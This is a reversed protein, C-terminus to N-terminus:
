AIERNLDRIRTIDSNKLIVSDRDAGFVNIKSDLKVHHHVEGGLAVRSLTVRGSISFDGMYKGFVQKGVLDYSM